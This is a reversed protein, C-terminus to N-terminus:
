PRTSPINSSAHSKTSARPRHSGRRSIAPTLEPTVQIRRSRPLSHPSSTSVNQVVDPSLLSYRVTMAVSNHWFREFLRAFDTWRVSSLVLRRWDVAISGTM